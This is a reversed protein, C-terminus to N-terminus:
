EYYKKHKFSINKDKFRASENIFEILDESLLGHLKDALFVAEISNILGTSYAEYLSKFGRINHQIAKKTNSNEEYMIRHSMIDDLVNTYFMLESIIGLPNNDPKKLEFISLCHGKIAWIDIASKGSTAYYTDRSVKREFLGVPLQRNMADYERSHDQVYKCELWGESDVEYKTIDAAEKKGINCYLLSPICPITKAARAWSYTQVFKALRYVFRNFHYYGDEGKALDRKWDITVTNVKDKLYFKLAIAWGEFAAENNQMNAKLGKVSLKLTLNKEAADYSYDYSSPIEAGPRVEQLFREIKDKDGM